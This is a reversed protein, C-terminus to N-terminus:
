QHIYLTSAAKDAGGAAWVDTDGLCLRVQDWYYAYGNLNDGYATWFAIGVQTSTTDWRLSDPNQDYYMSFDFEWDYDAPDGDCLQSQWYTRARTGSAPAGKEIFQHWLSGPPPPDLSLPSVLGQDNVTANKSRHWQELPIGARMAVLDSVRRNQAPSLQQLITRLQGVSIEEGFAVNVLSKLEVDGWEKVDKSQELPPVPGQASVGNTFIGLLCMVLVFAFLSKGWKM